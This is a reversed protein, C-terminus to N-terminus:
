PRVRALFYALDAFDADTLGRVAEAMAAQTGIRAGTRYDELAKVTYPEHQGALRPMQERGSFDPNHCSACLRKDALEAGRKFRAEDIAGAVPPAPPLKAVHEAIATLEADTLDKAILNMEPSKRRGERYFFLQYMVALKPQGGIHPIRPDKSRGDEGHCAACQAIKDQLSQAHAPQWAGILAASAIAVLLWLLVRRAEFHQGRTEFHRRSPRLDAGRASASEGGRSPSPSPTPHFRLSVGQKNGGGGVGGWTM